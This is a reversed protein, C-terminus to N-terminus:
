KILQKAHNGVDVSSIVEKIKGKEDILFTTRKIGLSIKGFVNKKGFVGFKKSVEANKDALLEFQLNYKEIFKKHSEVTDTSVGLVVINTKKLDLFNDRLNCAQATCGSTFDAPYFYLAINKGKFASLKIKEGRSNQLEFDPANEGVKPMESLLVDGNRTM